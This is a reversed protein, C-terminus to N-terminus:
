TANGPAATPAVYGYSRSLKGIADGACSVRGLRELEALPIPRRLTQPLNGAPRTGTIKEDVLAQIEADSLGLLESLIQAAHQGLEPPPFLGVGLPKRDRLVSVARGHPLSAGVSRRNVIDFLHRARLEPSFLLDEANSLPAAAFGAQRLREVLQDRSSSHVIYPLNRDKAAEGLLEIVPEEQEQRVFVLVWREGQGADTRILIHRGGKVIEDSVSPRKGERVVKQLQVALFPLPSECCSLDIADGKGTRDRRDLAILTALAAYLGSVMDGFAFGVDTSLENDAYRILATYGSTAEILGALAPRESDPGTAGFGSMSLVVLGPQMELLREPAFGWNRMVRPTFNTAVVDVSKLLKAFIERAKPTALDLTMGRKNMNREAFYGSREWWTDTPDNDFPLIGRPFGDLRTVSEVKIVDAGLEGLIRTSSPGAYAHTLDLVRIGSLPAGGPAAKGAVFKLPGDDKRAPAIDAASRVRKVDDRRRSGSLFRFPEEIELANGRRTLAGRHILQPRAELQDIELVPGAPMRLEIAKASLEAITKQSVADAVLKIAAEPSTKRLHPNLWEQDNVLDLRGILQAIKAYPDDHPAWIHFDGDKATFEGMGAAQNIRERRAGRYPITKMYTYFALVRELNIPLLDRLAIDVHSFARKGARRDGMLSALVSMAGYIGGITSVVPANPCLPYREPKGSILLAGGDAYLTKESALRAPDGGEHGYATLSVLLLSPNLGVITDKDLGLRAAISPIFTHIVIDSSAILAQLESRGQASGYDLTLVTKNRGLHNELAELDASAVAAAAVASYAPSKKDLEVAIVDFGHDALLRAAYRGAYDQSLDLIRTM